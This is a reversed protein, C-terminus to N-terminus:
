KLLRLIKCNTHMLQFIFHRINNSCLAVMVNREGYRKEREKRMRAKVKNGSRIIFHPKCSFIPRLSCYQACHRNHFNNEKMCHLIDKWVFNSCERMKMYGIQGTYFIDNCFITISITFNAAFYRYANIGSSTTDM